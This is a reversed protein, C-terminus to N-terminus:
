VCRIHILSLAGDDGHNVFVKRPKKEFGSIWSILGNKDAHGSVGQRKYM